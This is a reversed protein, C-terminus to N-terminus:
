KKIFHPKKIIHSTGALLVWGSISIRGDFYQIDVLHSFILLILSTIWARDFISEKFFLYNKIFIAEYSLVVLKTIPILILLGPSSAKVEIIAILFSPIRTM